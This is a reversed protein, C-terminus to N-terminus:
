YIYEFYIKILTFSKEAGFREVRFTIKKVSFLCVTM